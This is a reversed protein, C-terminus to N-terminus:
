WSEQLKVYAEDYDVLPTGEGDMWDVPIKALLQEPGFEVGEDDEIFRGDENLELALGRVVGHECNHTWVIQLNDVRAYAVTPDSGDGVAVGDVFWTGTQYVVVDGEDIRASLHDEGRGETQYDISAHLRTGYRCATPSVWAMTVVLLWGLSVYFLLVAM